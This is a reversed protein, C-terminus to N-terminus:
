ATVADRGAQLAAVRARHTGGAGLLAADLQARKFLWHVDAEWTFGIGGHLQIATATSSRGADSAWAKATAAAIPLRDPEADATWAAFLTAVRAGETDLLIQAAKHQVAQFSGVPVGFQKRDKVYETTMDLSRQCIGVLDASIAVLALDIALGADGPLPEGGDTLRGFRRTPDISDVAEVAGGEQVTATRAAIDVLVVVDAGAADPVLQGAAGLAGRLEGSALGPLWRSRQEDSGAAQLAGAALVTGLFPTVACAYGLEEVLVALEVQGLGQGGHEESVAIGPWGLEGLEKWLADDYSRAEVATRVREWTSRSALLDKATRQIDRQDDSLHFRM